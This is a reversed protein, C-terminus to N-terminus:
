FSWRARINYIPSRDETEFHEDGLPKAYEFGLSYHKADTVDIGIAASSLEYENENSKLETRAADFVLYPEIRKILEGPLPQLYRLELEAAYGQDGQAQGDPYGRGYRKGGFRVQEASPLIDDSWFLKARTQVRWRPSILYRWALNLDILNFHTTEAGPRQGNADIFRNKNAGIEIGQKVSANLYTVQRPTKNQWRTNFEIASYRLEKEIGVTDGLGDQRRLEYFAEEDLHHLKTGIWWDTTKDLVLPYSLGVSFSEREKNEEYNIPVDSVFIRDDGQSEFQNASLELKLGESGIDQQYKIAYYQDITDNPVLGSLTLKDGHSTLSNISVAGLVRLEEAKSDDLGVTLEYPEHKAEEVRITTAGDLKKPKPVSVKLSYGPTREILKLYREFTALKLPKEAQMKAVLKHVRARVGEDEIQINSDAIFGEVLVITVQGNQAGQKPLFAFSLAYGADQYMATISRLVKVLEMKTVAEGIIPEVRELLESLEFVSGGQFQVSDVQIQGQQKSTSLTEQGPIGTQTEGPEAFTEEAQEVILPPEVAYAHSSLFLILPILASSLTLRQNMIKEFEM